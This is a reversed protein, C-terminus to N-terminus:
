DIIVFSISFDVGLGDVAGGRWNGGYGGQYTGQIGAGFVVGGGGSASGMYYGNQGRGRILGMGRGGAMQARPGIPVGSARGREMVMKIRQPMKAGVGIEKQEEGGEDELRSRMGMTSAVFPGSVVAVSGTGAM